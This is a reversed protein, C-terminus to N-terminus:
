CTDTKLYRVSCSNVKDKLWHLVFKGQVSKDIQSGTIDMKNHFRVILCHCYKPINSYEMMSICKCGNIKDSV